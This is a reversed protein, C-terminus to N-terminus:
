MVIDVKFMSKIVIDVNFSFIKKVANYIRSKPYTPLYYYCELAWFTSFFHFINVKFMIVCVTNEWNRM